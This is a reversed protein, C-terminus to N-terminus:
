EELDENAKKIREEEEEDVVDVVEVQPEASATNGNFLAEPEEKPQEGPKQVPEKKRLKPLKEALYSIPKPFKKTETNDSKYMLVATFIGSGLSIISAFLLIPISFTISLVYFFIAGVAGCLVFFGYFATNIKHQEM